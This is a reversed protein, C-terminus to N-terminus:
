ERDRLDNLIKFSPNLDNQTVIITFENSTSILEILNIGYYALEKLIYYYIGYLSRNEAPLLLTIASLKNRKDLLQELEFLNETITEFQEGIIITTESVGQSFTCFGKPFQRIHDLLRAQKEMLDPSNQFNYAILNSRVSIDNLKRFFHQLSKEAQILGGLPMRKIAMVIAGTKVERGMRRNIEPQLKRALASVNIMGENLAESLFPSRNVIQEVVTSIKIM